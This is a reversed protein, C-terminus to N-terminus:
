LIIPYEFLSESNENKKILVDCGMYYFINEIEKSSDSIIKEIM